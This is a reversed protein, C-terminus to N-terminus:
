NFFDKKILKIKRILLNLEYKHRISFKEIEQFRQCKDPCRNYLSNIFIIPIKMNDLSLKNELCIKSCINDYNKFLGKSGCMQCCNDKSEEFKLNVFINSSM